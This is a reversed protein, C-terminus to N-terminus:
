TQPSPDRRADPRGVAEREPMNHKRRLQHLRSRGIGLHRAIEDAPVGAVWMERLTEIM